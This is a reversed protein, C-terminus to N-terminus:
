LTRRKRFARRQWLAQSRDIRDLRASAKRHRANSRVDDLGAALRYRRDAARLKAAVEKEADLEAPEWEEVLERRQQVTVMRAAQDARAALSAVPDSGPVVGTKADDGAVAPLPVRHGNVPREDIATM